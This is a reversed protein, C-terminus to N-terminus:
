TFELWTRLQALVDDNHFYASHHTQENTALSLRRDESLQIGDVTEMSAVDVVCDNPADSMLTDALKDLAWWLKNGAASAAEYDSTIAHYTGLTSGPRNLWRQFRSTPAQANIGPLVWDVDTAVTALLEVLLLVGQMAAKIQAVSPLYGPRSRAILNTYTNLMRHWNESEAFQTGSNTGAVFVVGNINYRGAIRRAMAPSEAVSRYVLAGRSHTMVDVDVTGDVMPLMRLLRVLRRANRRPSQSLTRHDFGLVADYKALASTIFAGDDAAGSGSALAGFAGATSSITGHLLLLIRAGSPPPTWAIDSPSELPVWDELEPGRLQVLGESSRTKAWDIIGGILRVIGGAVWQLPGPLRALWGVIRSLLGPVFKFFFIRADDTAAVDVVGEGFAPLWGDRRATVSKEAPRYDASPFGQLSLDLSQPVPDVMVSTGILFTWKIPGGIAGKEDDKARFPFVWSLLGQEGNGGGQEVLAFARENRALDMDVHLAEAQVAGQRGPLDIVGALKFYDHSHRYDAAEISDLVARTLQDVGLREMAPIMAPSGQMSGVDRRPTGYAGTPYARLGDGFSTSAGESDDRAAM